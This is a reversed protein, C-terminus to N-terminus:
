PNDKDSQYNMRRLLPSVIAGSVLCSRRRLTWGDLEQGVEAGNALLHYGSSQLSSGLWTIFLHLAFWCGGDPILVPQLAFFPLAPTAHSHYTAEKEGVTVAVIDSNSPGLPGM